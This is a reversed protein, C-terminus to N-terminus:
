ITNKQPSYLGAKNLKDTDFQGECVERDNAVLVPIRAGYRYKLDPDVEINIVHYELGMEDLSSKFDDCATCEPKIYLFLEVNNNM